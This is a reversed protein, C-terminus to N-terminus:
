WLLSCIIWIHTRLWNYILFIWKGNNIFIMVSILMILEFKCFEHRLIDKCLYNVFPNFVHECSSTQLVHLYEECLKWTGIRITIELYNYIIELQLMQTCIKCLICLKNVNDVIMFSIFILFTYGYSIDPDSHIGATSNWWFLNEISM